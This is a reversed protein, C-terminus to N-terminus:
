KKLIKIFGIQDNTNNFVKVFYIGDEADINIKAEKLNNNLKNVSILNGIVDYVEFVEAKSDAPLKINFM